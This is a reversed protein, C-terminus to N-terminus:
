TQSEGSRVGTLRITAKVVMSMSSSCHITLEVSGIESSDSGSRLISVSMAASLMRYRVAMTRMMTPMVDAM